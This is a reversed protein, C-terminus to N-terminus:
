PLPYDERCIPLSLKGEHAYHGYASTQMINRYDALQHGGSDSSITSFNDLFRPNAIGASRRLGNIKQLIQSIHWMKQSKTGNPVYTHYLITMTCSDIRKKNNAAAKMNELLLRAKMGSMREGKFGPDGNTKPISKVLTAIGLDHIEKQQSYLCNQTLHYGESTVLARFVAKSPSGDEEHLCSANANASARSPTLVQLGQQFVFVLGFLFLLLTFLETLTTNVLDEDSTEPGKGPQLPKTM